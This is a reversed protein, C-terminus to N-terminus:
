VTDFAKAVELFAEGTLRKVGVNRTIIEVLRAL